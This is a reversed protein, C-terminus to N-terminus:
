KKTIPAGYIEELESVLFVGERILRIESGTCDLITSPQSQQVHKDVIIHEVAKLIGPDIEALRTPVPMGSKNASTSFLADFEALLAQLGAHNPVRLAVTGVATKLFDPLTPLANVVLTVPGPWCQSAFRRLNEIQFSQTFLDVKELSKILIIFPKEDREKIKKLKDFVLRSVNGFLGFVTDSSGLNICNNRVSNIIKAVDTKNNWYFVKDMM